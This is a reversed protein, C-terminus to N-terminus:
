RDRAPHSVIPALAALGLIPWSGGAPPRPEALSAFRYRAQLPRRVGVIHLTATM